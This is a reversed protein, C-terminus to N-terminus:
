CLRYTQLQQRLKYMHSGSTLCKAAGIKKHHLTPDFDLKGHIPLSTQNDLWWCVCTVPGNLLYDHPSVHSLGLFMQTPPQVLNYWVLVWNFLRARWLNESSLLCLAWGYGAFLSGNSIASHLRPRFHSSGIATQHPPLACPLRYVNWQHRWEMIGTGPILIQNTSDIVTSLETILLQCIKVVAQLNVYNKSLGDVIAKAHLACNM